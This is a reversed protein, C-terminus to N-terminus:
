ELWCDSRTLWTVNRPSLRSRATWAFLVGRPWDIAALAVELEYGGFRTTPVVVLPAAHSGDLERHAFVLRSRGPADDPLKAEGEEVWSTVVGNQSVDGLPVGAAGEGGAFLQSRSGCGFACAGAALFLVVRM